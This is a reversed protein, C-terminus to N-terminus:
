DNHGRDSVLTMLTIIVHLTKKGFCSHSERPENETASWDEAAMQRTHPFNPREENIDAKLPSMEQWHGQVKVYLHLAVAHPQYLAM